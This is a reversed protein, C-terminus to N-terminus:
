RYINKLPLGVPLATKEDRIWLNRGFADYRLDCANREDVIRYFPRGNISHDFTWAVRVILPNSCYMRQIQVMRDYPDCRHRALVNVNRQEEFSGDSFEARTFSACQHNAEFMYVGYKNGELTLKEDGSIMVPVMQLFFILGVMFWAVLSRRTTPIPHKTYFMGFLIVLVPLVTSPYRYGVLLGSYLHFFVFYSLVAIRVRRSGSFLFWVGVMEMLILQNTFLPIFEDPFLPLGTQLTSFYTGLIWTEHIKVATSLFYLLVLFVKLFFEKHPLCLLTFAFIFLYYEFNSDFSAIVFVGLFHWIFLPLMLLHARGWRGQYMAYVCLLMIGFFCMYLLPQTYGIPLTDLFLWDTCSQFYPRCTATGDTIGALTTETRYFWSNFATFYSFLLSGYV